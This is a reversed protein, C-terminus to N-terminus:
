GPLDRRRLLVLGLGVLAMALLSIVLVAGWTMPTAPWLPLRAFPSTKLLWDPLGLVAGFYGTVVCWVLGLWALWSWRPLGAVLLLAFTVLLWVAPAAVLSALMARWGQGLADGDGAGFVLGLALGGAALLLTSGVLAVSGHGALWAARPHPTTVLVETRGSEEEARLRLVISIGFAAALLGFLGTMTILFADNLNDTGGALKRIMDAFTPNKAVLDVSTTLLSGEIAGVVAFGLAWVLLATRDLRWAFSVPGRVWGAAYARGHRPALLADDLDRRAALHLAVAAVVVAAAASVALLWWREDAYSRTQQAWGFPTLWQLPSGGVRSNGFSTVLFCAAIVLGALGNAGRSTRAIQATLSAAAAFVLAALSQTFSFAVSGALPLGLAALSAVSLLAWALLLVIATGLGAALPAAKGVPGGGVLEIRGEDEDNRSHRVVLFAAVLGMALLSGASIRWATLGGTSLPDFLPGLIASLTPDAALTAALAKREAESPYLRDWSQAVAVTLYAAFVAWAPIRIRDRRLALRLLVGTGAFASRPASRTVAGHRAPASTTSM